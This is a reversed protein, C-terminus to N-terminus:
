ASLGRAGCLGVDRPAQRRATQAGEEPERWDQETMQFSCGAKEGCGDTMKDEGEWLLSHMERRSCTGVYTSNAPLLCKEQTPKPVFYCTTRKEEMQALLMGDLTERFKRLEPSCGLPSHM